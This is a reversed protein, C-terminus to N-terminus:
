PKQEESVPIREAKMRKVFITDEAFDDELLVKKDKNVTIKDIGIKSNKSSIGIKGAYNKEPVPVSMVKNDNVYLTIDNQVFAIRYKSVTNFKIKCDASSIEKIFINNKTAFPKTKDERDSHIFSVKNIGWYGGTFKFAYLHYNWNQSESTINFSLMVEVPSDVRETINMIIEIDTYNNYPKLSIISNFNLLEYYNWVVARGQTEYARSDNIAWIGSVRQWKHGPEQSKVPILSTFILVSIIIITKKM